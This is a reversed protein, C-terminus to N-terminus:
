FCLKLILFFFVWVSKNKKGGNSGTCGQLLERLVQRPASCPSPARPHSPLPPVGMGKHPSRAQDGLFSPHSLPSATQTCSQRQREEGSMTDHANVATSQQNPCTQISAPPLLNPLKFSDKRIAYQFCIFLDYFLRHQFAGGFTM